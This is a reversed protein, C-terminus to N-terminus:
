LEDAMKRAFRHATYLLRSLERWIEADEDIAGGQIARPDAHKLFATDMDDAKSAVTRALDKITKALGEATIISNTM